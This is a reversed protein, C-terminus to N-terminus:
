AVLPGGVRRRPEGRLSIFRPGRADQQQGVQGPVVEEPHRGPVGPSGQGIQPPRWHARDEVAM